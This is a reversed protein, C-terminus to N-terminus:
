EALNKKADALPTKGSNKVPQKTDEPKADNQNAAAAQNAPGNEVASGILPLANEAIAKAKKIEDHIHKLNIGSYNEGAYDFAAEWTGEKQARLILRQAM